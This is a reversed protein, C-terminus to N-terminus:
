QILFEDIYVDRVRGSGKGFVADQVAQAIEKKLGDLEFDKEIDEVSKERCIRMMADRIVARSQAKQLARYADETEEEDQAEIGLLFSGKLMRKGGSGHLNVHIPDMAVLVAGNEEKAIQAPTLSTSEQPIGLRTELRKLSGEIAQMRQSLSALQTRTPSSSSSEFLRGVGPLRALTEMDLKGRMALFSFTSLFFLGIGGAFIALAAVIRKWSVNM